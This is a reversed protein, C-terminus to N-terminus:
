PWLSNEPHHRRVKQKLFDPNVGRGRIGSSNKPRAFAVPQQPQHRTIDQKGTFPDGLMFCCLPFSIPESSMQRDLLQNLLVQQPQLVGFSDRGGVRNHTRPLNSGPSKLGSGGGM